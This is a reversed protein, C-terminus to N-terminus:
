VVLLLLFRLTQSVVVQRKIHQVIMYSTSKPTIFYARSIESSHFYDVGVNDRGPTKTIGRLQDAVLVAALLLLWDHCPYNVSLCSTAEMSPPQKHSFHQETPPNYSAPQFLSTGCGTRRHYASASANNGSSGLPLMVFSACLFFLTPGTPGM